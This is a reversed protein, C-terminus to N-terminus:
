IPGASVAPGQGVLFDVDQLFLDLASDDLLHADLHTLFITQRGVIWMRIKCWQM